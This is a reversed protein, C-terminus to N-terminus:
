ARNLVDRIASGIQRAVYPKRVYAGAGKALVERVRENEAYGSVIVAKQAPRIDLIRRYTELGDIGPAMMMDLVVLDVPYMKIYEIAEEGSAVSTVEYGLKVLIHTALDRQERLDDVILVREGNGQYGQDSETAAISMEEMTTPFYLFFETGRGPESKVDIYGNHDQVTGWVISLGLGTGSRGLIKKTYFPEFIRKLDGASIGEGSDSITLVAYGGEKLEEFGQCVGDIYRNETRITITGRGAMAEIANLILNMLVKDLHQPSGLINLLDVALETRIQILPTLNLMDNHEPTKLYQQILHNLNIAATVPVGRRALTLLDQVILGAREGAHMVQSAYEFLSGDELDSMLLESYGVIVGLVNNLDHAVGGALIGIAQMKEARRLREELVMREEQARKRETINEFVAAFRGAMPSFLSINYHRGLADIYGEYHQPSGELAVKHFMSLLPIRGMGFLQSGLRGIVKERKIGTHHFLAPNAGLVRFDLPRGLDDYIMENLSVGETMTEFLGRFMEESKRLSDASEKEATQDRIVLTFGMVEGQSDYIPAMTYVVPRRTGDRNILLGHNAQHQLVGADVCLGRLKDAMQGSPEDIVRFIQNIPRGCAETEPWGSLVEAVQNMHMVMGQSHTTVVGEGISYFMARFWAESEHLAKQAAKEETQNRFVLVFGDGGGQADHLPSISGSVPYEMGDRSLLLANRVDNFEGEASMVQSLPNGLSCRTAEDVIRFIEEVPKGRAEAEPWGTLREAAPNMLDVLGGDDSIIVVDGISMLAVRSREESKFREREAQILLRYQEKELRQWIMAVAVVLLLMLGIISVIILVSYRRWTEFLESSDIKTVMFWDSGPVPQVYALVDEGRYDRSRVLGRHGSVAKGWLSEKDVLPERKSLAAGKAFRLPNLILSGEKERRLLITEGSVTPVTFSQILPYLYVHADVRFILAGFPTEEKGDANFLPAVIDLHPTSELVSLHLETLLSRKEQLVRTLINKMDDPMRVPDGILRLHTKGALDVLIANRYGMKQCIERLTIRMQEKLGADGQQIIRLASNRVLPSEVFASCAALNHQRWRVIANAKSQAIGELAAEAKHQLKQEQSKYFWGGFVVIVVALLLSVWVVAFPFARRKM